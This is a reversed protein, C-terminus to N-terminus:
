TLQVSTIAVSLTVAVFVICVFWNVAVLIVTLLLAIVPSIVLVPIIVDSVKNTYLLVSVLPM